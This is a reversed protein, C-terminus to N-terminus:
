KCQTRKGRRAVTASQNDGQPIVSSTRQGGEETLQQSVTKIHYIFPFTV